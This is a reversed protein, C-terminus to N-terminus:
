AGVDSGELERRLREEYVRLETDGSEEPSTSAPVMAVPRGRRQIFWTGLIIAAVVLGIVPGWWLAMTFGQKPPNRLIGVGYKQVFFDLIQQRTWGQDLDRQITQRMQDSLQSNSDRVSLGACVPCNLSNAIDLAEPSLTEEAFAVSPTVALLGLIVIALLISRRKM